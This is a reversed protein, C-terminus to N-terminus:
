KNKNVSFSEGCGCEGESNPNKFKIMGSFKDKVYDIETGNLFDISSKEIYINLNNQKEALYSGDKNIDLPALDLIYSYGSCGSKKVGLKIGCCDKSNSLMNQFHEIASNTLKIM